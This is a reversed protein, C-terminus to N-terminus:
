RQGLWHDALSYNTGTGGVSPMTTDSSQKFFTSGYDTLQRAATPNSLGFGLLDTGWNGLNERQPAQATFVGPVYVGASAHSLNLNPLTVTLDRATYQQAKIGSLQELGDYDAYADARAQYRAARAAKLRMASDIIDVSSGSVGALSANAAYAGAAEVESLRAELRNDSQSERQRALSMTVANVTAGAAELKRRNNEATMFNALGAGANEMTNQAQIVANQADVQAMSLRHQAAGIRQNYGFMQKTTEYQSLQMKYNLKGISRGYYGQIMSVGLQAAAAWPFTTEKKTEKTM